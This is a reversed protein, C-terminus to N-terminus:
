QIKAIGELAAAAARGQATTGSAAAMGLVLAASIAYWANDTM